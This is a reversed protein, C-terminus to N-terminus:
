KKTTIKKGNVFRTSTSTKRINANGGSGNSFTSNFSSFSTFAAPRNSFFDDMLGGGGLSLGFPSFLHHSSLATQPHSNRNRRSRHDRHGNPMDSVCKIM